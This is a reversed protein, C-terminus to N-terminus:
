CMIDAYKQAIQKCISNWNYKKVSEVIGLVDWEKILAESIKDALDTHDESQCLLGVDESTIIHESGGNITAVVPKGCAMAEVQVVGFSERISPHVLIDSANLYLPIEKHAKHGLLKVNGSLKEEKIIAGLTRRRVGDGIILCLFDPCTMKVRKLAWLLYEHGKVESLNGVSLIIPRKQPLGLKKRIPAMQKPFFIDRRFGNPIVSIDNPLGLKGYEEQNSKSVTINLDASNIITYIQKKYFENKYPLDYIDYGHTTLVFPKNFIKKLMAGVYGSTWAFHSHIMDFEIKNKRIIQVAKNFHKKGLKKYGTRNPLYNLPVPFISVNAPTNTTQIALESTHPVLFPIPFIRAVEAIPKYRVLVYVQKFYNALLDIQDKQFSNYNHVLYLISKRKLINV